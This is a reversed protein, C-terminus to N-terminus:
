GGRELTELATPLHVLTSRRRRPRPSMRSPPQAEVEGKRPTEVARARSAAPPRAKATRPGSGASRSSTGRAVASGAIETRISSTARTRAATVAPPRRQGELAHARARERRPPGKGGYDKGKKGGKSWAGVDMADPDKAQGGRSPKSFQGTRAEVYRAVEERMKQYDDLRNANLLLHKELGEPVLAELSSCKIDDTLTQKRGASDKRHEYRRTLDEWSQLAGLVGQLNSRKPNIIERLLARSRGAVTPDWRRHLLRWAELGNGRGASVVIDFSEEDTLATLCGYLQANLGELGEVEDDGSLAGFTGEIVEITAETPLEKAWKLVPILEPYVGMVYTETKRSWTIFDKETNNFNSPRGIGKNDVLGPRRGSQSQISRVLDPVQRMAAWTDDRVARLEVNEAGLRM